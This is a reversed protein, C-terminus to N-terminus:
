VGSVLHRGKRVVRSWKVGLERGQCSHAMWEKEIIPPKSFRRMEAVVLICIAEHKTGEWVGLRVVQVSCVNLYKSVSFNM